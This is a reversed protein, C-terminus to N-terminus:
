AKPPRQSMAMHLHTRIAEYLHQALEGLVEYSYVARYFKKGKKDEIILGDECGYIRGHSLANRFHRLAGYNEEYKEQGDCIPEVKAKARAFAEAKSLDLNKFDSGTHKAWEHPLVLFMYFVSVLTGQGQFVSHGLQTLKKGTPGFVRDINDSILPDNGVELEGLNVYSEALALAQILISEEPTIPPM